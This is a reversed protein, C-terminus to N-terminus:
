SSEVTAEESDFAPAGPLGTADRGHIREPSQDHVPSMEERARLELRIPLRGRIERLNEHQEGVTRSRLADEGRGSAPACQMDLRVACRGPRHNWRLRPVQLLLPVPRQADCAPCGHLDGNGGREGSM